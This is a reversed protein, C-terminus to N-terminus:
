EADDETRLAKEILVEPDSVRQATVTVRKGNSSIVEISVDSRRQKLWVSVSNALVTVAGGAGFVVTLTDTIGGMNGSEIPQHEIQARGRFEAERGLWERLSALESVIDRGATM